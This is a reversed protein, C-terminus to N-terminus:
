QGGARGAPRPAHVLGVGALELALQLLEDWVTGAAQGKIILDIRAAYQLLRLLRGPRHRALAARLLPKRREWVRQAALVADVRGGAALERAMPELSRLERSLAWLVVTPEVGEGSLGYLVRATRGADGALAADVLTFVDYRASNGVAAAVAQEDLAGAPYLLRLKEVEQAAALLNGEVREAILAAAAESAELGRARLRRRVWAPLQGAAVPWVALVAGAAELAKFWKSRQQAADLKGCAILLLTAEPPAQAYEALARAGGDGPKGGPMRLELLRQEAFLSLSDGAARLESWDFGREVHFVQRETFGQARAAARIADAAEGAQLPEDGHILYIPVLPRELHSALQEIRIKM